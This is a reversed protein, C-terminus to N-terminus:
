IPSWSIGQSSCGRTDCVLLSFRLNNFDHAGPHTNPATATVAPLAVGVSLDPSELADLFPDEVPMQLFCTICQVANKTGVHAAVGNWREGYMLIGDLLLLTEADSWGESTEAVQSFSEYGPVSPWWISHLLLLLLLLPLPTSCTEGM